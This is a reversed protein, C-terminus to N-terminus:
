VTGNIKAMLDTFGPDNAWRNYWKPSIEQVFHLFNVANGGMEGILKKALNVPQAKIMHVVDIIKMSGDPVLYIHRASHDFRNFGAKEFLNLLDIIRVTLGRDIPHMDLHDLLSPYTLYEMVIFNDGSFYVEPCIGVKGGLKLGQLERDLDQKVCYIKVCRYDDIQFVAGQHGKGLLRYSTPNNVVVSGSQKTIQIQDLKDILKQELNM